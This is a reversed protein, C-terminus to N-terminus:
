PQREETDVFELDGPAVYLKVFGYATDGPNYDYAIEATGDPYIRLIQAHQTIDYPWPLYDYRSRADPRVRVRYGPKM